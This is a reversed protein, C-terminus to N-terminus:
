SVTPVALLIDRLARQDVKMSPTRPLSDMRRILVPVQYAILREKLYAKFEAEDKPPQGQHQPVFRAYFLGIPKLGSEEQARNPEGVPGCGLCTLVVGLILLYQARMPRGM